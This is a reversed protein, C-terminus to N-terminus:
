GIVISKNSKQTAFLVRCLSRSEESRKKAAERIRAIKQNHREARKRVSEALDVAEDRKRMEKPPVSVKVATPDYEPTLNEKLYQFIDMLDDGPLDIAGVMGKPLNLVRTPPLYLLIREKELLFDVKKVQRKELCVGIYHEKRVLEEDTEHLVLFSCEVVKELQELVLPRIIVSEM